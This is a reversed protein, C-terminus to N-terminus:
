LIYQTDSKNNIGVLAADLMSVIREAYNSKNLMIFLMEFFPISVILIIKPMVLLM